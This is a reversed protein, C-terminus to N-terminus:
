LYHAVTKTSERCHFLCINLFILEKWFHALIQAAYYTVPFKAFQKILKTNNVNHFRLSSLHKPLQCSTM